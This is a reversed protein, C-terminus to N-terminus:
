PAGVTLPVPPAIQGPCAVGIGIHVRRTRHGVTVLVSVCAPQRVWYGGAFALWTGRPSSQSPSPTWACGAVRLHTTRPAPNGWGLSVRGRWEPPVRLDFSAGTRFQLGDKAFFRANPDSADGGPGAGLAARTTLAVTGSVTTRSAAPGSSAGIQDSCRLTATAAAGPPATPLAAASPAWWCAAVAALAARGM